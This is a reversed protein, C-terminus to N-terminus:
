LGYKKRIDITGFGDPRIDDLMERLTARIFDPIENIANPKFVIEFIMDNPHYNDNPYKRQCITYKKFYEEEWKMVKPKDEFLAMVRNTILHAVGVNGLVEKAVDLVEERNPKRM